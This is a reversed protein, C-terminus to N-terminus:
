NSLFVESEERCNFNIIVRDDHVYISNVFTDIIRQKNDQSALKLDIMKSLWFKVQERTLIQTQIEESSFVCVPDLGPVAKTPRAGFAQETADTVPIEKLEYIPFDMEYLM